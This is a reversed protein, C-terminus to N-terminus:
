VCCIRFLREKEGIRKNKINGELVKIVNGGQGKLDTM